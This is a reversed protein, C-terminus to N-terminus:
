YVGWEDPITANADIIVEPNGPNPAILSITAYRPGGPTRKWAFSWRTPLMGANYSVQLYRSEDWGNWRSLGAALGASTGPPANVTTGPVVRTHSMSTGIAILASTIAGSSGGSPLALPWRTTAVTGGGGQVGTAFMLSAGAYCAVVLDEADDGNVHGGDLMVPNIPTAVQVPQQDFGAWGGGPLLGRNRYIRLVGPDSQSVAGSYLCALDPFGDGDVDACVSDIPTAAIQCSRVYSLQLMQEITRVVATVTTSTIELDLVLGPALQPADISSADCLLSGARILEFSDGAAFVFGNQPSLRIRPQGLDIGGNAVLSSCALGAAGRGVAFELVAISNGSAPSARYGGSVDMTAFPDSGPLSADGPSITGWENEILQAQGFSAQGKLSGSSMMVAAGRPATNDAFTTQGTLTVCSTSLNIAGGRPASNGTFNCTDIVICGPPTVSGYPNYAIALAGAPANDVFTSSAIRGAVFVLAGQGGFSGVRTFSSGSINAYTSLTAAQAMDAFSCNSLTLAQLLTSVATDAPAIILGTGGGRFQCQGITSGAASTGRIGISLDSSGTFTCGLVSSIVGSKVMTGQPNTFTSDVLTSRTARVASPGTGIVECQEMVLTATDVATGDNSGRNSTFKCRRIVIGSNALLATTPGSSSAGGAGSFTLHEVESSPAAIDLIQNTNDFRAIQNPQDDGLLDASLVTPPGTFTRQAPNNETGAFGGRIFVPVRVRFLSTTLIVGRGPRYTGGAVWIEDIYGSYYEARSLADSLDNFATAWSWGDGGPPADARVFVVSAPPPCCGACVTGNGCYRGRYSPGECEAQTLVQCGGAAPICCAGRPTNCPLSACPTGVGNFTGGLAQCAVAGETVTCGAFNPLCCAGAQSVVVARVVRFGNSNNVGSIDGGWSSTGGNSSTNSAGNTFSGGVSVRQGTAPDKE